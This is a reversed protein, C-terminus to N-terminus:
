TAPVYENTGENDHSLGCREVRKKECVCVCRDNREVMMVVVMVVLWWTAVILNIRGFFKKTMGM